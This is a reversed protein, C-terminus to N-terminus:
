IYVYGRSKRNTWGQTSSFVDASLRTSSFVDASLRATGPAKVIKAKDGQQETSPDSNNDSDRDTENRARIVVVNVENGVPLIM